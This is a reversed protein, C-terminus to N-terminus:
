TKGASKIKGSSKTNRSNGRRTRSNTRTTQGHVPLGLKHRLGSWSNLDVLQKIDALNKRRLDAEILYNNEIINRFIVVLEESLDAFKSNYFEQESLKLEVKKEKAEAFVSSIVKKVNNKGIGKIPTLAFRIQKTPSINVGAIRVVM